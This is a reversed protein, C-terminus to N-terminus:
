PESFFELVEHTLSEFQVEYKKRYLLVAAIFHEKILLFPNTIETEIMTFQESDFFHAETPFFMLPEIFAVYHLMILDTETNTKYFHDMPVLSVFLMNLCIFLLILKLM